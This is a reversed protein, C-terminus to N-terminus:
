PLKVGRMSANEAEKAPTVKRESTFAGAKGYVSKEAFIVAVLVLLSRCKANM